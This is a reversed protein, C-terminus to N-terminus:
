AVDRILSMKRAQHVALTRGSVGLKSYINKLHWKVTEPAILLAKAIQKNSLGKTVLELVDRERESLVESGIDSLEAPVVVPAPVTDVQEMQLARWLKERYPSPATRFAVPMAELLRVIPDGADVVTRIIGGADCRVLAETLCSLASTRDGIGDYAVALLVRARTAGYINNGADDDAVRKRLIDVSETYRRKSFEVRVRSYLAYALTEQHAGPVNVPLGNSMTELLRVTREADLPREQLLWLRTREAACAALLRTWARRHGVAEARDLIEHALEFEARAIYMRVLSMYAALVSDLYCADDVVDLRDTLLEEVSDFEGWQYYIAALHGSLLTAAASLRGSYQECIKITDRLRKACEYFRGERMDCISLVSARYSLTFLNRAEDHWPRYHHSQVLHAMDLDGSMRYCYTLSNLVAERAWASGEVALPGKATMREFCRKGIELAANTEDKLATQCFRLALLEFDMESSRVVEGDAIQKEIDELISQVEDLKMTLLLAWALAIRLGPRQRIASQPLKRVWLLLNSVRSDEVERMACREVWETALDVRDAALAHKVAEAWYEHEAFWEAARLHLKPLESGFRLELQSRLFDVFLAHYRYWRGEDDLGQLFMNQAALWQLNGGGGSVEAVYDCLDGSLRDLISTRLMFDLKEPAVQPLVNDVLYESVAKLHGSFSSILVSPSTRGRLALTAIQLGTVWGETADHIARTESVSLKLPSVAAFFARTDDIEFRMSNVDIEVLQDHARLYSLPLPPESRTAVVVHLNRPIHQLLFSLLEHIAPSAISDYDDLILTIERDIKDLANILSALVVRASLIEGGEVHHDQVEPYLPGIAEALTNFLYEVFHSSDNDERDLTLWAVIKREGLLSERWETLLTTKGFGAPAKVLTLARTAGVMLSQMALERRVVKRSLRPPSLKTRIFLPSQRRQLISM